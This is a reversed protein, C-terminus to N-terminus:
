ARALKQGEQRRTKRTKTDSITEDDELGVRRLVAPDREFIQLLRLVAKSPRNKGSEWSEIAKATVGIMHSFNVQTHGLRVRLRKIQVPSMIRVPTYRVRRVKTTERANGRAFDRAEDIGEM